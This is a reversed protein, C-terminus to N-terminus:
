SLVTMCGSYKEKCGRALLRETSTYAAYMCVYTCAEWMMGHKSRNGGGGEGLQSAPDGGQMTIQMAKNQIFRDTLVDVVKKRTVHLIGM